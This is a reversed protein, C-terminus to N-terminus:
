PMEGNPIAQTYLPILKSLPLWECGSEHKCSVQNGNFLSMTSDGNDRWLCGCGNPCIYVFPKLESM